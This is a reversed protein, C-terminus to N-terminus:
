CRGSHVVFRDRGGKQGEDSEIFTMTSYQTRRDLYVSDAVALGQSAGTDNAGSSEAGAEGNIPPTFM